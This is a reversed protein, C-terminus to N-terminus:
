IVLVVGVCLYNVSSINCYRVSSGTARGIIESQFSYTTMYAYFYRPYLVNPNTRICFIRQGLVIPYDQDWYLCEGLTAGESVLFCDGTKVDEKMWKKYVENTVYRISDKAVLKGSNINRASITPTGDEVWDSNLKRPTKGRHDIILNICEGLPKYTTEHDNFIM